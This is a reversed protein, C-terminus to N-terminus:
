PISMYGMKRSSRGASVNKLITDKRGRDRERGRAERAASREVEDEQAGEKAKRCAGRRAAARALLLSEDELEGPKRGDDIRVSVVAWSFTM